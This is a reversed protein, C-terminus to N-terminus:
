TAACGDTGRRGAAWTAAGRRHGRRRQHRRDTRSGAVGGARASVLQALYVPIVSLALVIVAAVNVLPVQGTRQYNSFIWIPLTQTGSRVHVDDRHDRRVVPRLGPPGRGRALDRDSPLTVHRFTQGTDGGLDM